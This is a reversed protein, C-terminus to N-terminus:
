LATFTWSHLAISANRASVVLGCDLFNATSKGTLPFQDCLATRQLSCGGGDIGSDIIYSLIYGRFHRKRPLKAFDFKSISSSFFALDTSGGSQAFIKTM